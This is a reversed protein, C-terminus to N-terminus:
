GLLSQFIDTSGLEEWPVDDRGFHGYTATKQYIPKKLDLFKIIGGQSLDFHERICSIIAEEQISSKTM